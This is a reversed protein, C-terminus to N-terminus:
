IVAILPIRLVTGRTRRWISGRTEIAGRSTARCRSTTLSSRRRPSSRTPLRAPPPLLRLRRLARAQRRRRARARGARGAPAGRGASGRARRGDSGFPPIQGCSFIQKGLLCAYVTDEFVDEFCRASALANNIRYHQCFWSISIEPGM